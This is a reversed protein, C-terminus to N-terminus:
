YDLLLNDQMVKQKKKIPKLPAVFIRHKQGNFIADAVAGDKTFSITEVTSGSYELLRRLQAMLDM